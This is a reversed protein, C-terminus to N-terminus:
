TGGARHGFRLRGTFLWGKVPRDNGFAGGIGETIALKASRTVGFPMM